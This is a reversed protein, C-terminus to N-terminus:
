EETFQPFAPLAAAMSEDHAPLIILDPDREALAAVKSITTANAEWKWDVGTLWRTFPPRSKQQEIGMQTWTTDGSFFYRKGNSANVFLGTHGPTHGPLDVLILQGDGLLDLSREFGEYPQLPMEYTHWKIKADRQEGLYSPASGKNAADLEASQVWVPVGPFDPLGGAHDWHLHTIMIGQVQSPEIGGAHLQDVAPSANRYGFLMRNLSSNQEFAKGTRRGVGADLLWLGRPHKIVVVQQRLHRVKLWSGGDVVMGEIAGSSEATNIVSLQVAHTVPSTFLLTSALLTLSLANKM